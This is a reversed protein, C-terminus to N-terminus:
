RVCTAATCRPRALGTALLRRAMLMARGIAQDMDLYRYEGLRGCFVVDPLGAALARYREYLAANTADPVPYEADDTQRAARPVERTVLTGRVRARAAPELLHTWEVSRIAPGSAHQPLNMQAVSQVRDHGPEYVTERQQARYELRGLVFGFYEDIAGTFVTTGRARILGGVDEYATGLEIDIGATLRTVLASYGERPLGQYIHRPTLRPDDDHRVQIRAALSASLSSAPRGWQKETYDRVFHTYAHAPMKRLVAAEFNAAPERTHEEPKWGGGTTRRIYEGSVPWQEERGDVLARLRAEYPYFEAFRSVFEWIRRSSTRFYHPGHTNYRIGSPHVADAVNGGIQRRREVLLVRRGADSLLRAIVGGTLGSGVVVHDYNRM